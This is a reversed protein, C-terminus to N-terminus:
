AAHTPLMMVYPLLLPLLLLLLPLLLLLMLSSRLRLGSFAAALPFALLAPLNTAFLGPLLDAAPWKDQSVEVTLEMCQGSVYAWDQLRWATLSSVSCCAFNCPSFQACTCVTIFGTSLLASVALAALAM